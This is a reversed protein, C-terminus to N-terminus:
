IPEASFVNADDMVKSYLVPTLYFGLLREWIEVMMMMMTLSWNHGVEDANVRVCHNSISYCRPSLDFSENVLLADDCCLFM